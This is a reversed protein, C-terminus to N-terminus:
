QMEERQINCNTYSCYLLKETWVFKTRQSISCFPEKIQGRKNVYHISSFHTVTLFALATVVVGLTIWGGIQFSSFFSMKDTETLLSKAHGPWMTCLSGHQAALKRLLVDLVFSPSSSQHSNSQESNGVAHRADWYPQNQLIHGPRAFPRNEHSMKHSKSIRLM